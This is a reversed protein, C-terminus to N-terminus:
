CISDLSKALQFLNSFFFSTDNKLVKRISETAMHAFVFYQMNVTFIKGTRRSGKEFFAQQRYPAEFLRVCDSAMALIASGVRNGRQEELSSWHLSNHHHM